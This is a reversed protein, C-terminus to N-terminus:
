KCSNYNQFIVGNVQFLEPSIILALYEKTNKKTKKQKKKTNKQTKKTNKNIKTNKPTKQQNQKIKQKQKEGNDNTGYKPGIMGTSIGPLTKHTKIDRLQVFFAHIGKDEYEDCDKDGPACATKPLLLKAHM